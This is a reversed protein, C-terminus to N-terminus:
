RMAVSTGHRIKGSTTEIVNEATYHNKKGYHEATYIQNNFTYTYGLVLKYDEDADQMESSVITCPTEVWQQMAKTEQLGNWAMAVFFGGVVAFFLGFGSFVLKGVIGGRSSTSVTFGTQIGRIYVPL